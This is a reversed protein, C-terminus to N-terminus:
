PGFIALFEKKSLWGQASEEESPNDKTKTRAEGRMRGKLSSAQVIPYNTTRERQIPLDVAGLGRGSGAHLPTEVYIFLMRTAEFMISRRFSFKDSGSKRAKM